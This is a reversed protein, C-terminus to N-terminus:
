AWYPVYRANRNAQDEDLPRIVGADKAEALVISVQPYQKDTLGFRRRLSSNSMYDNKEFGLCAHQYCARIRDEKSMDAFAKPGYLTVVTTDEVQQFLPPPLAHKEIEHLARDIGSGREECIGIRRMLHGFKDNRSRSPSDIFRDTPILPKGPNSIKVKDPFIEVVPGDGNATFDQHIIANALIERIAVQPINYQTNRIGHQLVEKHQIRDMIYALLPVFSTAYGKRGEADSKTELKTKSSYTIVRVGKRAFGAFRRMDKAASLVLLNTVDFGGQQNDTVLEEMVLMEVASAISPRAAGLDTLLKTIEFNDYLTDVNVHSQAIGQEFSFRSTIQWIAREREPHKSLEQLSTDIRIYAVNNFKVPRQYTPDVALIEITKGDIMISAHEVNVRPDLRKSLWFLFTDSGVKEREIRVDTGVINHTGDEVGFILYGKNEGCFIASNALASIYRGATEANFVGVKFEVWETEKAKAALNIVLRAPNHITM